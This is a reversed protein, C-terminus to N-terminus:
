ATCTHNRSLAIAFENVVGNIFIAQIMDRPQDFFQCFYLLHLVFLLQKSLGFIGFFIGKKPDKEANKMRKRSKLCYKKPKPLIFKASISFFRM